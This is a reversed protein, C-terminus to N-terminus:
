AARLHRVDSTREVRWAPTSSPDHTLHVIGGNRICGFVAALLLCRVPSSFGHRIVFRLGNIVGRHTVVVVQAGPTGALTELVNGIRDRFELANEGDGFHWARDGARLFLLVSGKVSAWSLHHEGEVLVGRHLERFVHDAHPELHAIRAIRGATEQARRADSTLLTDPRLQALARGAADAEAVGRENLAVDITQHVWHRNDATEGHRVLYIHKVSM